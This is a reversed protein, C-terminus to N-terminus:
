IYIYIYITGLKSIELVTRKCCFFIAHYRKNDLIGTHLASSFSLCLCYRPIDKVPETPELLSLSGFKSFVSYSLSLNTLRVCQDGKGMLFYKQYKNRNSSSDVEPVIVDTFFELSVMPFRVRSKGAKM